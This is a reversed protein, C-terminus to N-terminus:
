HEILEVKQLMYGDDERVVTFDGKEPKDCLGHALSLWTSRPKRLEMSSPSSAVRTSFSVLDVVWKELSSPGGVHYIKPSYPALGADCHYIVNHDIM